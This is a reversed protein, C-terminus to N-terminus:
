SLFDRLAIVLAAPNDEQINHGAEPISVCRADRFRTAFAAVKENTLVRSQGGRAILVKCTISGALESLEALRSSACLRAARKSGTAM